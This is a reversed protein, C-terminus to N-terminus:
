ITAEAHRLQSNNVIQIQKEIRAIQKDSMRALDNASFTTGIANNIKEAQIEREEAIARRIGDYSKKDEENLLRSAIFDKGLFSTSSVLFNLCKKSRAIAKAEQREQKEKAYREADIRAQEEAM